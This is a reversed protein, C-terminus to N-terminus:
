CNETVRLRIQVLTLFEPCVLPVLVPKETAEAAPEISPNEEQEKVNWGSWTAILSEESTFILHCLTNRQEPNTISIWITMTATILGFIHTLINPRTSTIECGWISDQVWFGVWVIIRLICVTNISNWLGFPSNDAQIKEAHIYLSVGSAVIIIKLDSIARCRSWCHQIFSTAFFSSRDLRGLVFKPHLLSLHWLINWRLNYGISKLNWDSSMSFLGPKWISYLVNSNNVAHPPVYEFVFPIM